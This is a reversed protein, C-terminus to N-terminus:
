GMWSRVLEVLEGAIWWRVPRGSGSTPMDFPTLVGLEALAELATLGTRASVELEAAVTRASVIPQRPLLDIVQHVASDSRAEAVRGRWEGLLVTVTAFLEGASEASRATTEAFWQVWRVPDGERYEYLGSLYGGPDRALFVSLPPPLKRIAQRRRLVWGILVRGIRGNGDGYPHIAEFQAHAVAAQTIPDDEDSNVYALLDDMLEPVLDAPPPVYVADLPSSGGIWGPSIRWVGHLTADLLSGAMLQSHWRHLVESDLARGAQDIAATV